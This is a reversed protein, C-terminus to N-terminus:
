IGGDEACRGKGPLMRGKLFDVTPLFIKKGVTKKHLFHGNRAGFKGPLLKKHLFVSKKVGFEVRWLFHHLFIGKKVGFGWGGYIGTCFPMKKVWHQLM